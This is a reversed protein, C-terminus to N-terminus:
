EEYFIEYTTTETEGEYTLISSIKRLYDGDYEYSFEYSLTEEEGDDNGVAVCSTPLKVYRKGLKDGLMPGSGYIVYWLDVNLNNLITSNYKFSMLVDADSGEIAGKGSVSNVVGNEVFYNAKIDFNNHTGEVASLYGDSSYNYKLNGADEAVGDDTSTTYKISTIRGNESEWQATSYVVWGLFNISSRVSNDSYQYAYVYLESISETIRGEADFKYTISNDEDDTCRIETVKKPLISLEIVEEEDDDKSCSTFTVAAVMAAMLGFYLIHKM